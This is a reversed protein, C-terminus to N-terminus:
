GGCKNKFYREYLIGGLPKKGCFSLTGGLRVSSITRAAQYVFGLSQGDFRSEKAKVPPPGIEETRDEPKVKGGGLRKVFQQDPMYVEREKLSM